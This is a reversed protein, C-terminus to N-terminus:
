IPCDNLQAIRMRAAERERAPLRSKKYAADILLGVAAGLEPRMTWVMAADGGEGRPIEIRAMDVAYFSV